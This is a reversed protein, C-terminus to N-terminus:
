RCYSGPPHTNAPPQSAAHHPLGVVGAVVYCCWRVSGRHPALHTPSRVGAAAATRDIWDKLPEDSASLRLLGAFVGGM